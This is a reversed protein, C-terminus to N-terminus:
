SRPNFVPEKVSRLINIMPLWWYAHGRKAAIGFPQPRKAGIWNTWRHVLCHCLVEASLTQPLCTFQLTIFLSLSLNSNHLGAKGPWLGMVDVPLYSFILKSLVLSLHASQRPLCYNLSLNLLLWLHDNWCLSGTLHYSFLSSVCGKWMYFSAILFFYPLFGQVWLKHFIM